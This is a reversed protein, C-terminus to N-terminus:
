AIIKLGFSAVDWGLQFLNAPVAPGSPPHHAFHLNEPMASPPVGGEGPAIQASRNKKNNNNIKNTKPPTSCLLSKTKYPFQITIVSQM